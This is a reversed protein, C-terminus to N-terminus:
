FHVHGSGSSSGVGHIGHTSWIHATIHITSTFMHVSEELADAGIKGETRARDVLVFNLAVEGLEVEGLEV